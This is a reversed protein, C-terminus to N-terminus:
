SARAHPDRLGLFEAQLVLVGGIRLAMGGLRIKEEM